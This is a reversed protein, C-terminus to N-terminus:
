GSHSAFPLRFEPLGAFFVYLRYFLRVAFLNKEATVLTSGIDAVPVFVATTPSDETSENPAHVSLTLTGDPATFLMGHGGDPHARTRKYLPEPMQRWRGELRGNESYAVGVCYGGKEFNSWLMLLRGTKTRYLFPGDTINGTAWAADNGRFLLIPETIFTTLDDSLKAAMMDGVGDANSTWEGVYVMWPQGTGDVYLTGDIADHNKPTIHGDTIMEFPGLPSASRFIAVGRKDTSAAHCTAFLYFSGKYYHCEPAWWDGDGDFGEPPTCVKVPASWNKLDTSYVCGYGNWALGTGYMYYVGEHELIFPDRVRVGTDTETKKSGANAAGSFATVALAGCLVLATMAKFIQRKKM